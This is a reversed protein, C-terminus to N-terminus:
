DKGMASYSSFIQITEFKDKVDVKLNHLAEVQM